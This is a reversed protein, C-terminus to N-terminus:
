GEEMSVKELQCCGLANGGVTGSNYATIQLSESSLPQEVDQSWNSQGCEEPGLKLQKTWIYGCCDSRCPDVEHM